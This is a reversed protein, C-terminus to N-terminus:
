LPYQSVLPYESSASIDVLLGVEVFSKPFRGINVVFGVDVGIGSGVFVIVDGTGEISGVYAGSRDGESEGLSSIPKGKSCAAIANTVIAATTTSTKRSCLFYDRINQIM